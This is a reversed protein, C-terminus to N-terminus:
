GNPTLFPVMETLTSFSPETAELCHMKMEQLLSAQLQAKAEKGLVPNERNANYQKHLAQLKGELTKLEEPDITKLTKLMWETFEYDPFFNTWLRNLIGHDVVNHDAKSWDPIKKTAEGMGPEHQSNWIINWFHWAFADYFPISFADIFRTQLPDPLSKAGSLVAAQAKQLQMKHTNLKLFVESVQRLENQLSQIQQVLPPYDSIVRPYQPNAGKRQLLNALDLVRKNEDSDTFQKLTRYENLRRLLADVQEIQHGGNPEKLLSRAQKLASLIENKLTPKLAAGLKPLDDNRQVLVSKTSSNVLSIDYLCDLVQFIPAGVKDRNEVTRLHDKFQDRVKAFSMCHFPLLAEQNQALVDAIQVPKRRPEGPEVSVFTLVNYFLPLLDYQPQPSAAPAHQERRSSSPQFHTSTAM